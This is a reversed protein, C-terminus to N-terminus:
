MNWSMSIVDSIKWYQWILFNAEVHEDFSPVFQDSFLGNDLILCLWLRNSNWTLDLGITQAPLWNIVLGATSGFCLDASIWSWLCVPLANQEESQHPYHLQKRKNSQCLSINSRNKLHLDYFYISMALSM